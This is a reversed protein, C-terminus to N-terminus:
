SAQATFIDGEARVSWVRVDKGGQFAAKEHFRVQDGELHGEGVVTREGSRDELVLTAEDVFDELSQPPRGDVQRVPFPVGSVVFDPTPQTM